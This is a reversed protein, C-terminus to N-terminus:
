GPHVYGKRIAYRVLETIKSIDLKQMIHARHNQATRVSICLMDAIERSSKGEAVLKLVQRERTSLGKPRLGEGSQDGWRAMIEVVSVTLLSSIYKRGGRITEIAKCLEADTDEKLLYGDAGASVARHLYEKDKHMTLILVKIRPHIKKIEQAAETGLLGPMKLDIIVMDPHLKRAVKLLELGDNVEEVVKLGPMEEIIRKIGSRFLVHDDALVIRYATM